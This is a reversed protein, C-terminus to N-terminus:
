SDLMEKLTHGETAGSKQKRRIRDLWSEGFSLDDSDNGKNHKSNYRRAAEDEDIDSDSSELGRRRRRRRQGGESSSDSNGNYGM